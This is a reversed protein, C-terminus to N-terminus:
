LWGRRVAEVGAQFRSDVGLEIQIDAIRRRVTRLSIGLTRAISEDKAGDALQLLLLRRLDPRAERRDLSPVPAAREWMLEFLLTLAEILAPQRILLRPEDASGMPEPLIAHSDGLVVLRSPLEPVIRIQEGAEARRRLTDPAEQLAIAPYIARSRRGSAVAEAVVEAMASERPMRWADPRWWLLDGRSERILQGLLALANGGSSKEGDIPSLDEVEGPGPMVPRAALYSIAAAMGTLREHTEQAQSAQRTLLCTLAQAESLVHVRGEAVTVIGEGILAGLDDLLEAPSRQCAAAVTEVDAGALALCHRHLRDQEPSFGLASLVSSAAHRTM